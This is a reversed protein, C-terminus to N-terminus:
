QSRPAITAMMYLKDRWRGNPHDFTEVTALRHGRRNKNGDVTILTDTARDYSVIFGVHGKRSASGLSSRHWCILAYPEPNVCERGVEAVRETLTKAGRSTKFPLAYDDLRKAAQVLCFSAFSACWPGALDWPLGTGDNQRWLYLDAGRNNSESEGNGRNNLAIETAVKFLNREAHEANQAAEISAVVEASSFGKRELGHTREWHRILTRVHGKRLPFGFCSCETPKTATM